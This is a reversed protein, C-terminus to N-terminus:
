RSQRKISQYAALAARRSEDLAVIPRPYKDSGWEPIHHRIYTERPDFKKAQLEPNFVRFYPAADVGSGAVWQWNFPNSAQDADVLTDWFWQEGVRWDILLNKTLFSAAVMRVRNHMTGTEWLERMGADVIPYGTTGRQWAALEDPHVRRWPFDNFETRWNCESLNPFHFLVHWAFERWGIEALFKTAGESAVPTLCARIQQVEHWVQHASLEGWRLHPSLGSTAHEAPVDRGASYAELDDELFAHLREHAHAEGPAWTRRLGEAWDPATPQLAWTAINESGVAPARGTCRPPTPLPLRLAEANNRCERWFPTFVSYPSGQSTRIVWPEFLLSAQFSEVHVGERRLGQKLETDVAIEGAGYRRNWFLLTAESDRIVDPVVSGAAGKRLVLSINLAALSQELSLLSEHLWWQAAGGLPRIRPSEEDLVYLALVSSGRNIAATLAPNDAVRLDDRFWVVSVSNLAPRGHREM